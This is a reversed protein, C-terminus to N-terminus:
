RQYAGIDADSDPLANGAFGFKISTAFTTFFQDYYTRDDSAADIADSTAQLTLDFTAQNTFDADGEVCTTCNVTSGAANNFDAMTAHQTSAFSGFNMGDGGYQVLNHTLTSSANTASEWGMASSDGTNSAFLNDKIWCVQSTECNIGRSNGVFTNHQIVMDGGNARTHIPAGETNSGDTYDYPEDAAEHAIDYFLNGIVYLGTQGTAAIGVRCNHIRNFLIWVDTAGQAGSGIGHIVMCAGPDSPSYTASFDYADNQSIVVQKCGKIDTHNEGNHHGVNGGVYVHSPWTDVTAGPPDSGCQFLDGSTDHAHNDVVWMLTSNAASTTSPKFCHVDAQAGLPLDPGNDHCYNRYVVTDSTGTGWTLVNGNSMDSNGHIENYNFAAHNANNSFAFRVFEYEFGMVVFYDGAFNVQRTTSASGTFDPRGSAPYVYIPASSSGDFTYSVTGTYSYGSGAVVVVVPTGASSISTPITLRPKDPYGNANSSDTAAGHTRDIYYCHTTAATPWNTCHTTQNIPSAHMWGFSPDPIGIPMSSLAPLFDANHTRGDPDTHQPGQAETPREPVFRLRIRQADTPVGALVILLALLLSRKM